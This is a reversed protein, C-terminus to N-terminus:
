NRRASLDSPYWVGDFAHRWHYTKQSYPTGRHMGEFNPEGDNLLREGFGESKYLWIRGNNFAHYEGGSGSLVIAWGTRRLETLTSEETGVKFRWSGGGLQRLSATRIPRQKGLDEIRSVREISSGSWQVLPEADWNAPKAFRSDIKGKPDFAWIAVSRERDVVAAVVRGDESARVGYIMGPLFAEGAAKGNKVDWVRLGWEGAMSEDENTSGRRVVAAVHSSTLAEIWQIPLPEHVTKEAANPAEFSRLEIPHGKAEVGPPAIFFSKADPRGSWRNAASRSNASDLAASKASEKSWLKAGNKSNFTAYDADDTIQLDEPGFDFGAYTERIRWEKTDRAVVRGNRVSSYLTAGDASFAVSLADNQDDSAPDRAASRPWGGAEKSRWPRQDAGDKGFKKIEKGTEVDFVSIVFCCLAVFRGDGSVAISVPPGQPFDRNLTGVSRMVGGVFQRKAVDWVHVRVPFSGEAIALFKGNKSLGIARAGSAFSGARGILRLAATEPLSQYYNWVGRSSALLTVKTTSGDLPVEV